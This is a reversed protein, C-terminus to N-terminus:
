LKRSRFRYGGSIGKKRIRDLFGPSSNSYNRTSKTRNALVGAIAGTLLAVAAFLATNLSFSIRRELLIGIIFTVVVYLFATLLGSLISNCPNKKAASSSGAFVGLVTAAIASPFTYMEPFDTFCLLFATIVLIILTVILSILVSKLISKFYGSSVKNRYNDEV